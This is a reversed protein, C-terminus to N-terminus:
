KHWECVADTGNALVGDRVADLDLEDALSMIAGIAMPLNLGGFAVYHESFGLSDLAQAACTLPSGGAIDGLIVVEDSPALDGFTESVRACFADPTDDETMGLAVVHDRPGMLMELASRVGEALQAHSVLLLYRM